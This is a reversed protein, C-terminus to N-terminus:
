RYQLCDGEKKQTEVFHKILGLKIHIQPLLVKKVDVLNNGLKNKTGPELNDRTAWDSLTPAM